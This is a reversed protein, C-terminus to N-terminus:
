PGPTDRFRRQTAFIDFMYITFHCSAHTRAYFIERLSINVHLQPPPETRSLTVPRGLYGGLRLTPKLEVVVDGVRLRRVYPSCFTFSVMVALRAGEIQKAQWALCSTTPRRRGLMITGFLRLSSVNAFAGASLAPPIANALLGTNLLGVDTSSASCLRIAITTAL